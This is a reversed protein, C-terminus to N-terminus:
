TTAVYLSFAKGSEITDWVHHDVWRAVESCQHHWSKATDLTWEAWRNVTAVDHLSAFGALHKVDLKQAEGGTTQSDLWDSTLLQAVESWHDTTPICICGDPSKGMSDMLWFWERRPSKCVSWNSGLEFWIAKVLNSWHYHALGAKVIRVPGDHGQGRSKPWAGQCSIPSKMPRM